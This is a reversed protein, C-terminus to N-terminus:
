CPTLELSLKPSNLDVKQRSLRLEKLYKPLLAKNMDEVKMTSSLPMSLFILGRPLLSLDENQMEVRFYSDMGRELSFKTL